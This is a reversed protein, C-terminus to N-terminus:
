PIPSVGGRTRLAPAVTAGITRADGETPITRQRATLAQTGALVAVPDIAWAVPALPEARRGDCVLFGRGLSPLYLGLDIPALLEEVTAAGGGVLVLHDPRAEASGARVAHGTALSVTRHAVGDQILPM